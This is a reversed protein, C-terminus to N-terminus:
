TESDQDDGIDCECLCSFNGCEDCIGCTTSDCVPCHADYLESDDTTM